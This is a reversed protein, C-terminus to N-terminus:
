LPPLPNGFNLTPPPPPNSPVRVNKAYAQYFLIKKYPLFVCKM